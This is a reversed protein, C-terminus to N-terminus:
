HVCIYMLLSCSHEFWGDLLYPLDGCGAVVPDTGHAPLDQRVELGGYLDHPDEHVDGLMTIHELAGVGRVSPSSVCEDPVVGLQVDRAQVSPHPYPVQLELGVVGVHVYPLDQLLVPAGLDGSERGEGPSQDSVEGVVIQLIGFGGEPEVRLVGLSELVHVHHEEVLDDDEVVEGLLEEEYGVHVERMELGLVVPYLHFQLLHLVEEAVPGGLLIQPAPHDRLDFREEVPLLVAGHHLLDLPVDALPVYELDHEGVPQLRIEFATKEVGVPHEPGEIRRRVHEIEGTGVHLDCPGGGLCQDLQLVPDEM